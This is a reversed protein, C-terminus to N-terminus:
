VEEESDSNAWAEDLSRWCRSHTVIRRLDSVGRISYFVEKRISDWEQRGELKLRDYDDEHAMHWGEQFAKKVMRDVGLARLLQRRLELKLADVAMKLEILM